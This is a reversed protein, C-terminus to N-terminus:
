PHFSFPATAAVGPVDNSCYSVLDYGLETFKVSWKQPFGEDAEMLVVSNSELNWKQSWTDIEERLVVSRDEVIKDFGSIDIVHDKCLVNEIVGGSKIKWLTRADFMDNEKNLLSIAMTGTECTFSKTGLVKHPWKMSSIKVM